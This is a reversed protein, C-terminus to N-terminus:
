EEVWTLVGDVCKLVFTGTNSPYSPIAKGNISNVSRVALIGTSASVLSIEKTSDIIAYVALENGSIILGRRVAGSPNCPCLIPNTYTLFEGQIFVGGKINEYEEETLTTSSPADMIKVYAGELSQAVQIQGEDIGQQVLMKIQNESYMRRM